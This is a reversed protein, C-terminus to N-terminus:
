DRQRELKREALLLEMLGEGKASGQLAAIPDAPVPVVRITRGDDIWVLRDGEQIKYRRRIAAPVVTQGRRTVLTDMVARWKDRIDAWEVLCISL